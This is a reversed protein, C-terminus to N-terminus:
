DTFGKFIGMQLQNKKSLQPILSFITECIPTIPLHTNTTALLLIIILKVINLSTCNLM